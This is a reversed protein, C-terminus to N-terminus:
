SWNKRLIIASVHSQTLEYEEALDRQLIGGARYRARIEDVQTPTVKARHKRHRKRIVIDRMNDEHTGLYLHEPNVCCRVDCKHLVQLTTPIEDCYLEYAIRHARKQLYNDKFLGYGGGGKKDDPKINGRWLWCGSNPEPTFLADFRERVTLM